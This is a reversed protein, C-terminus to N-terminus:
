VLLLRNRHIGRKQAIGQRQAGQGSHAAHSAGRRQCL